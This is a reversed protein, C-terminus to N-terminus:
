FIINDSAYNLLKLWRVSYQTYAYVCEVLHIVKLVNKKQNNEVRTEFVTHQIFLM